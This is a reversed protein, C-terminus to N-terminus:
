EAGHHYGHGHGGGGYGYGGDAARVTVPIDRGELPALARILQYIERMTMGQIDEVTIGPDLERLLLYTQYKGVSMGHGHAESVTDSSSTHCRINRQGASCDEMAQYIEGCQDENEGAVTLSLIGDQLYAAMSQSDLIQELADRYSLYKVDLTDALAQGDENYGEVSVVRGFRNVGLELSPNIDVSIFATPTFYLYSGGLCLVLLLCAAALLPRIRRFPFSRGGKQYVTKALYTKTRRKLAEDARVCDFAAKIRDTM